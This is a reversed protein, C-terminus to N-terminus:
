RGALRFTLPAVLAGERYTGILETGEQSLTGNYTGGAAKLDLILSSAEQRIGIPIELGEDVSVITGIATGDPQNSMTLVLPQKRGAMELTGNWRGELEKRIPASRAPPAIRADGNRTLSFPVSFGGEATIFDGSLWKGDVSLTGDFTGGGSGAKLLLRISRGDVSVDALPFGKLSQNSFTGMHKGASNKALDIEVKVEMNPAQIAGEWHASPEVATQALLSPAPSLLIAATLLLRTIPRM